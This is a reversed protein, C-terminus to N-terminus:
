YAGTRSCVKVHKMKVIMKCIKQTVNKAPNSQFKKVRHAPLLPQPQAAERMQGRGPMVSKWNNRPVSALLHVLLVLPLVDFLGEADKTLLLEVRSSPSM